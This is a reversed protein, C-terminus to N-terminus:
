RIVLITQRKIDKLVFGQIKKYIWFEPGGPNHKPNRYLVTFVIKRVFRLQAVICEDSSLDRKIIIPLKDKYFIGVGGKKGGGPHICAHYHYGEERWWPPYLM